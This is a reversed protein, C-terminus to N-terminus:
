DPVVPGDHSVVIEEDCSTCKYITGAAWEREPDHDGPSHHAPKPEFTGWKGDDHRHQFTISIEALRGLDM